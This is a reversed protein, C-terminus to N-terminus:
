LVLVGASMGSREDDDDDDDDDDDSAESSRSTYLQWEGTGGEIGMM